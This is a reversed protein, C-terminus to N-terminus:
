SEEFKPDITEGFRAKLEKLWNQPSPGHILRCLFGLNESINNRNQLIDERTTLRYLALFDTIKSPKSFLYTAHGLQPTEVVVARELDFIYESRFFYLRRARRCLQNYYFADYDPKWTILSVEFDGPIGLGACLRRLDDREIPTSELRVRIQEIAEAFQGFRHHTKRAEAIQDPTNEPLTVEIRSPLPSQWTELEWGGKRHRYRGNQVFTAKVHIIAGLLHKWQNWTPEWLLPLATQDLLIQVKRRSDRYTMLHEYFVCKRMPAQIAKTTMGPLFSLIRSAYFTKGDRSLDGSVIVSGFGGHPFLAPSSPNALLKNYCSRLEPQALINFARELVRLDSDPAHTTRLELSRLKFAIRLDAPSVSPEVRLLRYFSPQRDWSRHRNGIYFYDRLVECRLHIASIGLHPSLIESTVFLADRIDKRPQSVYGIEALFVDRRRDKPDTSRAHIETFADAALIDTPVRLEDGLRIFSALFNSILICTGDRFVCESKNGKQSIALVSRLWARPAPDIRGRIAARMDARVRANGFRQALHTTVEIRQIAVGAASHVIIKVQIVPRQAGGLTEVGVRGRNWVVVARRCNM